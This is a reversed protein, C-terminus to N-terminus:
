LGQESNGFRAVSTAANIATIFVSQLGTRASFSPSPMVVTYGIMKQITWLVM